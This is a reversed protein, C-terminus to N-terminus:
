SGVAVRIYSNIGLDNDVEKLVQSINKKNDKVFEQNLLTNEKFFKNLKGMAIKEAIEAPKGEAKIQEKAIEVEHDIVSQPVSDKDLAIPNMAAIQMAIDRGAANIADNGEKNFSVLVGIKYGMHIYGTVHDGEVREFSSLVIKEGIKAVQDTIVDSIKQSDITMELLEDLSKADNDIAAQAIKNTIEIFEENKAVFDTECSLLVAIGLKNDASTKVVAVGETAERDARKASIKQGKKRLFDIAAEFDGNTEALAKKCDMMGAGTEKRLKAVDAAKIGM